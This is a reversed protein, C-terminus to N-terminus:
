RDYKSVQKCKERMEKKARKLRVGVTGIPIHLVDAIEKYKLDEFYFLILVERYRDDLKELCDKMLTKLNEKRLKQTIEEKEGLCPLFVDFEIPLVPSNKQKKLFNVFENHAIRYIWSSFSRQPNFSQINQYTNLFVEQVMDEIDEEGASFIFRKAYRKLKKEYREVLVVFAEKQGKQVLRALEEDKKSNLNMTSIYPFDLFM